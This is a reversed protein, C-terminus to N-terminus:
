SRAASVGQLGHEANRKKKEGAELESTFKRFLDWIGKRKYFALHNQRCPCAVLLDNSYFVSVSVAGKVSPARSLHLMRKETWKTYRESGCDVVIQLDTFYRM